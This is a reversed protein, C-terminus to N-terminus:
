LVSGFLAVESIVLLAVASALGVEAGVDSVGNSYDVSNEKLWMVGGLLLMGIVGLTGIDMLGSHLSVVTCHVLLSFLVACVVTSPTIVNVYM